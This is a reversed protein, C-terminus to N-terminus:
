SHVSLYLAFYDKANIKGYIGNGDWGTRMARIQTQIKRGWLNLSRATLLLFFVVCSFFVWGRDPPLFFSLFAMAMPAPFLSSRFSTLRHRAFSVFFAHAHSNYSTSPNDTTSQRIKGKV